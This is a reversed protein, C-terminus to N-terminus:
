LTTSQQISKLKHRENLRKVYETEKLNRILRKRSPLEYRKAYRYLTRECLGTVRYVDSLKPYSAVDNWATTIIRRINSEINLDQM